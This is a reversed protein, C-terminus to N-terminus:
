GEKNAIDLEKDRQRKARREAAARKKEEYQDVAAMIDYDTQKVVFKAEVVISGYEDHPVEILMGNQVMHVDFDLQEIHEAMLEHLHNKWERTDTQHLRGAKTERLKASTLQTILKEM